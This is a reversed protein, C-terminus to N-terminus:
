RDCSATHEGLERWDVGHRSEGFLSRARHELRLIRQRLSPEKMTGVCLFSRSPHPVLPIVISLFFDVVSRVRGEFTSGTESKTYIGVFNESM